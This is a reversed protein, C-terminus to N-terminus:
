ADRIAIFDIKFKSSLISYHNFNSFHKRRIRRRQPPQHFLTTHIIDNSRHIEPTSQIDFLFLQRPTIHRQHPHLGSILVAAEFEVHEFTARREILGLEAQWPPIFFDFGRDRQDAVHACEADRHPAVLPHGDEVPHAGRGGRRRPAPRQRGGVIVVQHAVRRERFIADDGLLLQPLVQFVEEFRNHRFGFLGADLQRHM